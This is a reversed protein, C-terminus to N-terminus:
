LDYKDFITLATEHDGKEVYYLANHWYNHTALMWGHKWDDVTNEMFQIGEDIRGEMEM